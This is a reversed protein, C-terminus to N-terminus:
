RALVEIIKAKIHKIDSEKFGEHVMAVKGERDLLYSTPMGRLKYAQPVITNPDEAVLYDVPYKALFKAVDDSSQDISVAIIELGSKHLEKYVENFLPLSERCPPCWTAWVDLLVVKGKYDSLRIPKEGLANKLEFGPAAEGLQVAYAPIGLMLPFLVLLKLFHNYIRLMNRTLSM